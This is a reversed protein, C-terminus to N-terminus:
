HRKEYIIYGKEVAASDKPDDGYNKFNIWGPKSNSDLIQKIGGAAVLIDLSFDIAAGFYGYLINGPEDNRLLEGNYTILKDDYKNKFWEQSKIDYDMGTDVYKIFEFGKILYQNMKRKAPNKMDKTEEEAKTNIEDALQECEEFLRELDGDVPMAKKLGKDYNNGLLNLAYLYELPYTRCKCNPHTDPLNDKEFVM